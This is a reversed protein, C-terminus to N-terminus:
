CIAPAKSDATDAQGVEEKRIFMKREEVRKEIALGVENVRDWNLGDIEKWFDCPQNQYSTCIAFHQM